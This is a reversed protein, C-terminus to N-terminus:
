AFGGMETLCFNLPLPQLPAPNQAARSHSASGCLGLQPHGASSIHFYREVPFFSSHVEQASM